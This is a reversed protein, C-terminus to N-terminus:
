ASLSISYLFAIRFHVVFGWFRVHLHVRLYITKHHRTCSNVSADSLVQVPDSGVWLQFCSFFYNSIIKKDLFFSIVLCYHFISLWLNINKKNNRCLCLKKVIVSKVNEVSVYFDTIGFLALWSAAPNGGVANELLPPIPPSKVGRNAVRM